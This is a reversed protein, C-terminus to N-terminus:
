LIEQLQPLRKRLRETGPTRTLEEESVQMLEDVAEQAPYGGLHGTVVLGRKHGEAIITRGVARGSGAYIKLTTVKWAAMDDQLLTGDPEHPVAHFAAGGILFTHPEQWAAQVGFRELM